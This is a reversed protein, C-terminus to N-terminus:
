CSPSRQKQTWARDEEREQPTAKSQPRVRFLPCGPSTCASVQQRWSGQGGVDYICEKCKDNIAGRLSM